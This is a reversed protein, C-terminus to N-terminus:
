RPNRGRGRIATAPSEARPVELAESKEEALAVMRQVIAKGVHDSRGSRKDWLCPPGVGVHVLDMYQRRAEAGLPM